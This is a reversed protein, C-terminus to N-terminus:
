DSCTEPDYPPVYWVNGYRDVYKCQYGECNELWDLYVKMKLQADVGLEGVGSAEGAGGANSVSFVNAIHLHTV